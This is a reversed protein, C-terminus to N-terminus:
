EGGRKELCALVSYILGAFAVAALTGIIALGGRNDPLLKANVLAAQIVPGILIALVFGCASALLKM